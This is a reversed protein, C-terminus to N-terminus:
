PYPLNLFGMAFSVIFAVIVTAIVVALQIKINKLILALLDIIQEPLWKFTLWLILIPIMVIMMGIDIIRDKITEM